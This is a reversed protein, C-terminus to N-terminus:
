RLIRNSKLEFSAEQEIISKVDLKKIYGKIVRFPDDWRGFSIPRSSNDLIQEIETMTLPREFKYILRRIENPDVPVLESRGFPRGSGEFYTKYGQLNEKSIRGLYSVENNVSIAGCWDVKIIDGAICVLNNWTVSTVNSSNITM